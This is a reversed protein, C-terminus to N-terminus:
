RSAAASTTRAAEGSMSPRKPPRADACSVVVVVDAGRVGVVAGVVVVVTGGVVAGVVVVVVSGAVVVVRARGVVLVECGDVVVDVVAAALVDELEFVQPQIRRASTMTKATIRTARRIARV